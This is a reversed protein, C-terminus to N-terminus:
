KQREAEIYKRYKRYYVQIEKIILSPFNQTHTHTYTHTHTHTYKVKMDKWLKEQNYGVRCRSQGRRM